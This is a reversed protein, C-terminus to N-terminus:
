EPMPMEEPLWSGWDPMLTWDPVAPWRNTRCQGAIGKLYGHVPLPFSIHPTPPGINLCVTHYVQRILNAQLFCVIKNQLDGMFKVFINLTSLFLGASVSISVLHPIHSFSLLFSSTSSSFLLIFYISFSYLQRLLAPSHFASLFPGFFFLLSFLLFSSFRFHLPWDPLFPLLCECWHTSIRIFILLSFSSTATPSLNSFSLIVFRSALHVFFSRLPHSPSSTFLTPYVLSKFILFLFIVKSFFDLLIRPPSVPLHSVYYIVCLCTCYYLHVHLTINYWTQLRKMPYKPTKQYEGKLLAGCSTRSTM